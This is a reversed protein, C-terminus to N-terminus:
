SNNVIELMLEGLKKEIAIAQLEPFYVNRLKEFIDLKRLLGGETKYAWRIARQFLPDKVVLLGQKNRFPSVKTREFIFRITLINGQKILEYNISQVLLSQRVYPRKRLNEILKNKIIECLNKIENEM